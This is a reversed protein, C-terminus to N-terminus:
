HIFFAGYNYPNVGTRTGYRYDGYWSGNYFYSFPGQAALKVPWNYESINVTGDGNVSEVYAVHGYFGVNPFVMVDGPRPQGSQSYGAKAGTWEGGNGIAPPIPKGVTQRKWAVYSTCEGTYYGIGDLSDPVAPPNGWPYGSSGGSGGEGFSISDVIKERSLASIKSDLQRNSADLGSIVSTKYAQQSALANRQAIQSAALAEAKAKTVEVEHKKNDLQIKLNEIKGLTEQIKQQMTNLYESKDVFDSFNSSTMILEIQSTQGNIYMTRIYEGLVIKQKELDANATEIQGSLEALQSNAIDIQQQTSSIQIQIIKVQADIVAVERAVTQKQLKNQAIENRLAAIQQDISDNYAKQEATLALAHNGLFLFVLLFTSIVKTMKRTNTRIYKGLNATLNNQRYM